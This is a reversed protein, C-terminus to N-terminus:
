WSAATAGPPPNQGRSEVEPSSRQKQQKSWLFSCKVATQHISLIWIQQGKSKLIVSVQTLYKEETQGTHWPLGWKRGWNNTMHCSSVQANEASCRLKAFVPQLEAATSTGPSAAPATLPTISAKLKVGKWCNHRTTNSSDSTVTAGNGKLAFCAATIGYLLAGIQQM